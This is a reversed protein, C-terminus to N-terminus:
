VAICKLSMLNEGMLAENNASKSMDFAQQFYKKAEAPKHMMNSGAMNHLTAAKNSKVDAENADGMEDEYKLVQMFCNLSKAYETKDM